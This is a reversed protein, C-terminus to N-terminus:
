NLRIITAVINSIEGWNIKCLNLYLIEISVTVKNHVFPIVFLSSCNVNHTLMLTRYFCHKLSAILLNHSPACSHVICSFILM